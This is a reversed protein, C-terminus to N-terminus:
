TSAARSRGAVGAAQEEASGTITPRFMALGIDADLKEFTAVVRMGTHVEDSGCDVINTLMYWGEDLEVVAVVYPTPTGPNPPRHIVTYTHVQGTGPSDVWRVASSFCHPCVPAPLWVFAHCDDCRQVILRGESAARWHPASVEDPVPPPGFLVRKV